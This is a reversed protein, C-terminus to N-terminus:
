ANTNAVTIVKSDKGGDAQIRNSKGAKDLKANQVLRIYSDLPDLKRDEILRALAQLQEDGQLSKIGPRRQEAVELQMRKAFVTAADLDRGEAVAQLLETAADDLMEALRKPIVPVINVRKFIFGILKGESRAKSTVGPVEGKVRKFLENSLFGSKEKAEICPYENSLDQMEAYIIEQFRKVVEAFNGGLQIYDDLDFIDPCGSISIKIEMQVGDRMKFIFAVGEYLHDEDDSKIVITDLLVYPALLAKGSVVYRNGITKGFFTILGVEKPASNSHDKLGYAFMAGAIMVSLMGFARYGLTSGYYTLSLGLCFISLIVLAISGTIWNWFPPDKTESPNLGSNGNTGNTM